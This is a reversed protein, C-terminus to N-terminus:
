VELLYELNNIELIRIAEPETIAFEEGDGGLIEAPITYKASPDIVAGIKLEKLVNNLAGGTITRSSDSKGSSQCTIPLHRDIIALYREAEEGYNINDRRKSSHLKLENFIRRNEEEAKSSELLDIKFEHFFPVGVESEDGVGPSQIYCHGPPLGMITKAEVLAKKNMQEAVSRSTGGKGSNHSRSKADRMVETEGLTKSIMEATEQEGPNFWVKTACGARFGKAYDKGYRADLQGLYQAGIILSAGNSREENLWNLAIKMNLTPFEDLSVVLPEKRGGKLNCSVVQQLATAIIPLTSSRRDKDVGFIILQKGDVEMPKEKDFGPFSTPGCMSPMYRPAIMPSMKKNATGLVGAETVNKKDDSMSTILAAAAKKAWPSIKKSVRLREGLRETSLIQSVMLLNALYPDNEEKAISKAALFSAVIISEAAPDFFADQKGGPESTNAVMTKVIEQATELDEEDRLQDLPNWTHSCDFGPAFIRAQYGNKLAFPLIEESQGGAGFKFDFLAISFGQQIASLLIPNILSATKGAGPGGIVLIGRNISPLIVMAKKIEEDPSNGAKARGIPETIYYAAKTPSHNKLAERGQKKARSRHSGNAWKATVLLGKKSRNSFFHIIALLVLGAGIYAWAADFQTAKQKHATPKHTSNVAVFIL